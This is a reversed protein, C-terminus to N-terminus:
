LHKYPKIDLQTSRHFNLRIFAPGQIHLSTGSLIQVM